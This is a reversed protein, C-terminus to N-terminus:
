CPCGCDSWTSVLTSRETTLTISMASLDRRKPDNKIIDLNRREVFSLTETSTQDIDSRCEAILLRELLGHWAIVNAM